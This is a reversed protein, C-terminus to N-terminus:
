INEIQWDIPEKGISVLFNNAKSFPKSGFFGRNASLPSPHVSKIIFHKPNNIISLKSQANKGWLIFVIPDERENLLSIVRDTFHEWGMNKHSNAQGARVTLVTNLLMVGQDAWKKLYGNNPIYCGLDDHLEKYINMLSPPAPVGPKVSFSLGHAQNPGHYPDQGLIVVKVDKYATYHLANFIDYMNPYIIRTRYENILFKRLKLYYNKKFEDQLLNEWDNKLIQM